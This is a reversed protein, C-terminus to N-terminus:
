IIMNINIQDIIHHDKRAFYKQSYIGGDYIRVNKYISFNNAEIKLM